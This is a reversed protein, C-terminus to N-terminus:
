REQGRESLREEVANVSDFCWFGEEKPTTRAEWSDPAFGYVETLLRRKELWIESPLVDRWDADERVRPLYARGCDTYAFMWLRRTDIVGAVWQAAVARCCESHRRHTSYEGMPGHTLILDYRDGGLLRAVTGNLQDEQLPAQDPGDDLDALEGDAAFQQLIRRFRPARDSDLKRCLTVIRWHFEPHALLYGGCWLIEDDPHAVVIAGLPRHDRAAESAADSTLQSM